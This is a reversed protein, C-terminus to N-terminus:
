TFQSHVFGLNVESEIETMNVLQKGIIFWKEERTNWADSHYYISCKRSQYLKHENKQQVAISKTAIKYRGKAYILVAVIINNIALLM